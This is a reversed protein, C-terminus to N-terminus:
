LTGVAERASESGVPSAATARTRSEALPTTNLSGLFVTAGFIGVAIVTLAVVLEVITFGEQRGLKM